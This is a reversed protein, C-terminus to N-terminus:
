LQKRIALVMQALDQVESQWSYTLSWPSGRPFRPNIKKALNNFCYNNPIIFSTLKLQKRIAKVIQALDLVESEWSYPQSWPSGRPVRPNINQALKNFCYNNPIIFSDMKLLKRFAMVMQALDLLHVRLLLATVM